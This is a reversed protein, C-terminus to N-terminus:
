SEMSFECLTDAEKAIHQALREVAEAVEASPSGGCSSDSERLESVVLKCPLRDIARALEIAEAVGFAHTSCRFQGM